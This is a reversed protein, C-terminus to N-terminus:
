FSTKSFIKFSTEPIKGELVVCGISVDKSNSTPTFQTNEVKSYNISSITANYDNNKINSDVVIKLDIQTKLILSIAEGIVNKYNVLMSRMFENNVGLVVENANISVIQAPKVWTEFVPTSLKKVLLNKSLNWIDEPSPILRIDDSNSAEM